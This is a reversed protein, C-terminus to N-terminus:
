GTLPAVIAGTVSISRHSQNDVRRDHWPNVAIFLRECRLFLQEYLPAGIIDPMLGIWNTEFPSIRIPKGASGRYIPQVPVICEIRSSLPSSDFYLTQRIATQLRLLDLRIPQLSICSSM